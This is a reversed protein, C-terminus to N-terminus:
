WTLSAEPFGCTSAAVTHSLMVEPVEESLAIGALDHLAKSVVVPTPVHWSSMPMLAHNLM